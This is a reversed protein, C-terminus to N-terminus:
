DPRRKYHTFSGLTKTGNQAGKIDTTDLNRVGSRPPPLAQPSSREIHGYDANVATQDQKIFDGDAIKDRVQYVPALPNVNRKTQWGKEYVDSYALADYHKKRQYPVRNSAGEIDAVSIPDRVPKQTPRRSRTGAIDDHAMQDRVFRAEEPKVYEVSSLKYSPNLPNSQERKTKFKWACPQSKEIDSNALNYEPKQLGFHLQRPGAGAVDSNDLAFDPKNVQAKAWVRPQAGSLM